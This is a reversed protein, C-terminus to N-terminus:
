KSKYENIYKIYAAHSTGKFYSKGRGDKIEIANSSDFALTNDESICKLTKELFGSYCQTFVPKGSIMDFISIQDMKRLRRERNKCIEVIASNM